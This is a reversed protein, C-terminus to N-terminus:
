EACEALLELPSVVVVHRIHLDCYHGTKDWLIEVFDDECVELVLGTDGPDITVHYGLPEAGARPAIKPQFTGLGRIPRIRDGPKM